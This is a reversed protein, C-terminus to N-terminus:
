LLKIIRMDVTDNKAEYKKVYHKNSKGDGHSPRKPTSIYIAQQRELIMGGASIHLIVADSITTGSLPESRCIGVEICHLSRHLSSVISVILQGFVAM